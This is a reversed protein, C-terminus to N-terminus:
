LAFTKKKLPCDIATLLPNKDDCRVFLESFLTRGKAIVLKSNDNYIPREM